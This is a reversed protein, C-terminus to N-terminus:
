QLEIDKFGGIINGSAPFKTFDQPHINLGPNKLCFINWGLEHPVFFDKSTNDAFFYYDRKGYKDMFYRYNARHPKATGFEESIIIDDFLDLIGLAKLKNRQTISRGDTILGLPIKKQKLKDLFDRVDEELRIEPEHERYWALLTQMDLEPLEKGFESIIWNFVNEGSHYKDIMAQYLAESNHPRIKRAIYKYASKLYDIERFLTDDLDFIFVMDPNLRIVM